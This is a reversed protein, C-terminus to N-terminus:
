LRDGYNAERTDDGDDPVEEYHKHFDGAWYPVLDGESTIVMLDGHHYVGMGQAGNIRRACRCGKEDVSEVLGLRELQGPAFTLPEATVIGRRRYRKPKHPPQSAAKLKEECTVLMASVETMMEGLARMVGRLQETGVTVDIKAEGLNGM